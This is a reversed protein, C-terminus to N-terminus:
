RNREYKGDNTQQKRLSIVYKNFIILINNYM